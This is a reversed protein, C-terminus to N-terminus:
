AIRRATLIGRLSNVLLFKEARRGDSRSLRSERIHTADILAPEALIRARAIGPLIDLALPPTHWAGDIQLFVSSRAGELLYGSENYLLADFAGSAVAAQWIRDLHARHTSKHRRLPDRDPLSTPHELVFVDGAIADLPALDIQPTGDHQLTIKLRHASNADACHAIVAARLAAADCPLGLADASAALRALHADLQQPM